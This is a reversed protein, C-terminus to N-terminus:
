EQSCQSENVQTLQHSVPSHFQPPIPTIPSTVPTVVGHDAHTNRTSEQSALDSRTSGSTRRSHATNADLMELLLDYLLVVNKQKMSSLHEMGKNSRLLSSLFSPKPELVSILTIEM